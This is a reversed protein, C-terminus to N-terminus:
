HNYEWIPPEYTSICNTMDYTHNGEYCRWGYNKGSEIIDVEEWNGQGVDGCWIKNTIPDISFRWPNRLGFAFVEKRVTGSSDTFPNQLHSEM